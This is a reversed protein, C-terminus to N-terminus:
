SFCMRPPWLKWFKRKSQGNRVTRVPEFFRNGERLLAGVRAGIALTSESMCVAQNKVFDIAPAPRVSVGIQFAKLAQTYVTDDPQVSAPMAPHSVGAPMRPSLCNSGSSVFEKKFGEADEKSNGALEPLKQIPRRATNGLRETAAAALRTVEFVWLALVEPTFPFRAFEQPNEEAVQLVSEHAGRVTFFELCRAAGVAFGSKNRLKLRIQLM